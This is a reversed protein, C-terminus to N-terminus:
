ATKRKKKVNTNKLAQLEKEMREINNVKLVSPFRM